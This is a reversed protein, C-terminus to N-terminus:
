KVVFQVVPTELPEEGEDQWVRARALHPGRSMPWMFHYEDGGTTGSVKDDVLWEIKKVGSQGTIKM